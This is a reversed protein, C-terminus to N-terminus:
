QVKDTSRKIIAVVISIAVGLVIGSLTFWFADSNFFSPPPPPACVGQMPLDVREDVVAYVEDTEEPATIEQLIGLRRQRRAELYSAVQKSGQNMILRFIHPWVLKLIIFM